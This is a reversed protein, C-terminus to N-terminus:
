RLIIFQGQQIDIHVIGYMYIWEANLCYGQNILSGKYENCRDAKLVTYQVSVPKFIYWPSECANPM